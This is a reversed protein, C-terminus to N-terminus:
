CGPAASLLLLLVLVAAYCRCAAAEPPLPLLLATAASLLPLTRASSAPAPPTPARAAPSTLAHGPRLLPERALAQLPLPAGTVAGTYPPRRPQAVPAWKVRAQDREFKRPLRM